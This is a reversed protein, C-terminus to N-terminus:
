LKLEIKAKAALETFYKEVIDKSLKNKISQEAQEKTPIQVGRKDLMKIIHWGFQTKVPDSVENKKLSFAKEEYEPVLQGKLVYGIEGGNAKSGEDKSFEKVLDAFNTGKNLKKKIEKAKEETDVLIHSTKVEEQGKLNTTLAKYEDEVMKDTIKDKIQRELIEQQIMQTEIGKIKTKFEQSDRIKLKDAEQELLKSNIYGKVLVEQVNKDLESFSKGKSEPQMALVPNFQEMVQDATVNGGTYTAVVKNDAALVTSSLLTASLFVTALRKM